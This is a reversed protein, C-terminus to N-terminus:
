GSPRWQSRRGSKHAARWCRCPWTKLRRLSRCCIISSGCTGSRGTAFPRQRARPSIPWTPQPATYREQPLRMLHAWFTCFHAKERARSALSQWWRAPMFRLNLDRFLDLRRAVTKYTKKLGTVQIIPVPEGEAENRSQSPADVDRMFPRTASAALPSNEIM